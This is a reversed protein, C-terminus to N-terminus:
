SDPTPTEGSGALVVVETGVVVSFGVGVDCDGGSAVVGVDAPADGTGSPGPVGGAPVTGM